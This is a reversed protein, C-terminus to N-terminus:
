KMFMTPVTIIVPIVTKVSNKMRITACTGAAAPGTSTEGAFNEANKLKLHCNTKGRLKKQIKLHNLFQVHQM